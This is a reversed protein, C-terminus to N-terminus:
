VGKWESGFSTQLRASVSADISNAGMGVLIEELERQLPPNLIAAEEERCSLM